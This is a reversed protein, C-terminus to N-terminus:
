ALTHHEGIAWLCKFLRLIPLKHTLDSEFFLIRFAVWSLDHPAEKPKTWNHTDTHVILGCWSHAISPPPHSIYGETNDRSTLPHFITSVVIVVNNNLSEPFTHAQGLTVQSCTEIAMWRMTPCLTSSYSPRHVNETHTNSISRILCSIYPIVPHHWVKCVPLFETDIVSYLNRELNEKLKM